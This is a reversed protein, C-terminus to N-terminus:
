KSLFVTINQGFDIDNFFYLLQDQVKKETIAIDINVKRRKTDMFHMSISILVTWNIM